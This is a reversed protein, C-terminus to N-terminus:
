VQSFVAQRECFFGSFRLSLPIFGGPLAEDMSM